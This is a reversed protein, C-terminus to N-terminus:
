PSEEIRNRGGHKAVYLAHDAQSVIEQSTPGHRPYYAVGMSVTVTIENDQVVIKEKEITTRLAQM